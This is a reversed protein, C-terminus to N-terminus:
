GKPLSGEVGEVLWTMGKVQEPALTEGEAVRLAGTNDAIPGAFIQFSGDVIAAEAKAMEDAVPAPLEPSATTMKVFGDPGLGRWRATPEWTGAMVAKAAEIHAASWDLEFSVLQKQKVYASFDGTSGISWVGKEEAALGQVPTNPSGSIVDAGQAVLTAVADKEKGPNVWDNVWVIKLTAEPNVSRAGLLFANLSYIVQPVPFAGVWGLVNSQTMRGAAIGTLYTGEYHKAEFVGLNPGADIGACCEFHSKPLTPALKRLSAYQSFTTGFLLQHGQISLQRFLRECDQIQTINELVTVEVQDPFEEQLARWAEAQFYEWGTDSIAGMHIVGVKLKEGAALVPRAALPSLGAALGAAAAGQLLRRRSLDTM